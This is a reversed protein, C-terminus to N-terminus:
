RKVFCGVVGRDAQTVAQQEKAGARQCWVDRHLLRGILKESGISANFVFTKPQLAFSIKTKEVIEDGIAREGNGGHTVLPKVDLGGIHDPRFLNLQVSGRRPDERLKM